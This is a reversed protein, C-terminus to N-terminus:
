PRTRIYKWWIHGVDWMALGFDSTRLRSGQVDAWEYLPLEYIKETAAEAPGLARMYRAILEVDFVWRSSFPQEFLERVCPRMRFLKAGCQTDYIPLRLLASVVTAFVRGAYHRAPRRDIKRGLLKVRSGFVLDVEPRRELVDCFDPIASLPTALDADWFGAYHYSRTIAHQMGYRVAEAKGQNKASRLTHIRDERGRRLSELLDITGDASGDDVFVFAVTSSEYFREFDAVRLRARENYCPVVIATPTNAHV